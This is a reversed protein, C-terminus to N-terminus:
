RTRPHRARDYERGTLDRGALQRLGDGVAGLHDRHASGEIRRQRNDTREGILALGREHVADIWVTELTLLGRSELDALGEPVGGVGKEDWDAVGAIDGGVPPAEDLRGPPAEGALPGPHISILRFPRGGEDM